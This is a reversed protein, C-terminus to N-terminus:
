PCYRNSTTVRPVPVTTALLVTGAPVDVVTAVKVAPTGRPM